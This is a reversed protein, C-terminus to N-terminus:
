KIEFEGAGYVHGNEDLMIAKYIGKEPKGSFSFPVCTQQGGKLYNFQTDASGVVTGAEDQVRLSIPRLGEQAESNPLLRCCVKIIGLGSRRFSKGGVEKGSKKVRFYAFEVAQLKSAVKLREEQSDSLESLGAITSDLSAAQTKQRVITAAQDAITTELQTIKTEYTGLQNQALSLRNNVETFEETKLKGSRQAQSLKRKLSDIREDRETILKDKDKLSTNKNDIEEQLEVIDAELQTLESRLNEITVLQAGAQQKTAFYRTAFYGMASLVLLGVIVLIIRGAKNEKTNSM